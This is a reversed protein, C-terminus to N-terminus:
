SSCGLSPSCACSLGDKSPCITVVVTGTSSDFDKEVILYHHVTSGAVYKPATVPYGLCYKFDVPGTSNTLATSAFAILRGVPNYVGFGMLVSHAATGSSDGSKCVINVEYAMSRGGGSIGPALPIVEKYGVATSDGVISAVRTVSSRAFQMASQQIFYDALGDKVMVFVALTLLLFLFMVTKSLIYDLM